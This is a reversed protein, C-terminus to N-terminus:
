RRYFRGGYVIVEVAHRGRGPAEFYRDDHRDYYVIRRDRRDHRYYRDHRHSKWGHVVIARPIRSHRALVVPRDIPHRRHAVRRAPPTGVTVWGVVPLKGLVVQASVQADARTPILAASALVLVIPFRM